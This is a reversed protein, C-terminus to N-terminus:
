FRLEHWTESLILNNTVSIDFLNQSTSPDEFVFRTATNNEVISPNLLVRLEALGNCAVQVEQTILVENSIPESLHTEPSFDKYLPRYCLGTQYYTTGCPVYFALMIGLINLSLAISLFVIIWNCSLIIEKKLWPISSLALVLPLVLPIFYRGQVGLIEDAGVPTFTTYLSLITAFYGAVF